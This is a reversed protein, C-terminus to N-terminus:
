TIKKNEDQNTDYNISLKKQNVNNIIIKDVTNDISNNNSDDSTTEISIKKPNNIISKDKKICEINISM